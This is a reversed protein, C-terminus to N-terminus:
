RPSPTAPRASRHPLVTNYSSRRSTSTVFGSWGVSAGDGTSGEAADGTETRSRPTPESMEKSRPGYVEFADFAVPLEVRDNLGADKGLRLRAEITEWSAPM